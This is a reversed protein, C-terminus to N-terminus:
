SRCTRSTRRAAGTRITWRSSSSATVRCTKARVAVARQRGAQPPVRGRRGERHLDKPMVAGEPAVARSLSAPLGIQPSVTNVRVTLEDVVDISKITRRFRRRLPLRGFEAGDAAAPQIERGRADTQRRQPVEPGAASPVDLDARGRGTGLTGGGRSRHRGQRHDFGVLSDYMAAQYVANGPRQELIPDLTQAALLEVAFVLTGKQTQAAAPQSGPAALCLLLAYLLCRASMGM